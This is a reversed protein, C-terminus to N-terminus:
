ATYNRKSTLNCDNLNSNSGLKNQLNNLEDLVDQAASNITPLTTAVGPTCINTTATTAITMFTTLSQILDKLLNVTQKGLMLPEDTENKGLYIKNSQIILEPTDINVSKIANLNISKISTLLIHDEYSNFVLRGSDLIIQSKSYKDPLIPPSTKYSVYSNSSVEIPIQQTTTLYISSDDNKINETIPVWGEKTQFGQGNRIITIPDGNNNINSWNNSTNKVTSGLRISNGWRGELIVDGEFPLLPHIDSKEKFTKGLYIETSEDTVRRVSGLETQTYDKKQGESLRNTILPYANHHPHNWISLSNLYYARKSVNTKNLNTDPLLILYVIENILPFIKINPNIPYALNASVSSIPNEILEYQIVGLSNWGGLSNFKIPDSDDLLISVVRVPTFINSLPSLSSPFFENNLRNSNSQLSSFGFNGKTAM